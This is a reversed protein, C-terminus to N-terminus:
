AVPQLALVFHGRYGAIPSELVAVGKGSDGAFEKVGGTIQYTFTNQATQSTIVAFVKGRGPFTLALQGGGGPVASVKGGLQAHGIPSLTGHGNFAASTGGVVHYMGAVTGSLNLTSGPPPGALQHPHHAKALHRMAARERALEHRQVMEIRHEAAPVQALEHPATMGVGSLLEMSELSEFGPRHESKRRTM